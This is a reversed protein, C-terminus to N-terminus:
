DPNATSWADRRTEDTATDPALRGLRGPVFVGLDHGGEKRGYTAGNLDPSRRTPRIPNTDTNM